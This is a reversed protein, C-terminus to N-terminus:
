TCLFELQSDGFASLSHKKSSLEAFEHKNQNVENALSNMRVREYVSRPQGNPRLEEIDFILMRSRSMNFIIELNPVYYSQTEKVKRWIANRPRVKKQQERSHPSQHLESNKLPKTRSEALDVFKLNWKRSFHKFVFSYDLIDCTRDLIFEFDMNVQM